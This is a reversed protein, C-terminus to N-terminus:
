SHSRRRASIRDLLAVLREEPAEPLAADTPSHRPAVQALQVLEVLREQILQSHPRERLARRYAAAAGAFDGLAFLREGEQEPTSPLHPQLPEDRSATRPSLLEEPQVTGRLDALRAALAADDPFANALSELLSLADSIDGRRLARAARAETDARQEPTM